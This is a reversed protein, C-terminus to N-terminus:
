KTDRLMGAAKARSITKAYKESAPKHGFTTRMHGLRVSHGAVKTVFAHLMDGNPLFTRAVGYHEKTGIMHDVAAQYLENTSKPSVLVPVKPPVAAEIGSSHANSGHGLADKM